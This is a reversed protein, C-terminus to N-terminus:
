QGSPQLLFPGRWTGDGQVARTWLARPNSSEDIKWGETETQSPFTKNYPTVGCNGDGQEAISTENLTWQEGQVTMTGSWSRFISTWCGAVMNKELYAIAFQGDPRITYSMTQATGPTYQGTVPDTYGIESVVGYRWVGVVQPPVSGSKAGSEGKANPSCATLFIVLMAAAPAWGVTTHVGRCVIGKM